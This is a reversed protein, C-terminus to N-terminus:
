ENEEEPIREHILPSTQPNIDIQPRRLPWTNCRDRSIPGIDDCEMASSDQENPSSNSHLFAESSVAGGGSTSTSQQQQKQQSPGPVDNNNLIFRGNTRFYRSSSSSAPTGDDTLLNASNRESSM